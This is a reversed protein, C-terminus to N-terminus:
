SSSPKPVARDRRQSPSEGCVRLGRGLGLDRRRLIRRGAQLRAGAGRDGRQIRAIQEASLRQRRKARYNEKLDSDKTGERLARAYSSTLCGGNLMLDVVVVQRAPKMPRIAAFVHPSVTKHKLMEIAEPCIGDLINKRAKITSAEVNLAKAIKEAPVGRELARTIMFHEQVLPLKAIRKNYTFGDDESAVLCNVENWGLKQIVDLRAHGDLLLWKGPETRSPFIALPEVLGVAQISSRIRRYKSSRRIKLDVDHLPRIDSISVAM